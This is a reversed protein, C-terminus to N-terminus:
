SKELTLDVLFRISEIESATISNVHYMIGINGERDRINNLEHLLGTKPKISLPMYSIATDIDVNLQKMKTLHKFRQSASFTTFGLNELLEITQLSTQNWPPIYGNVEQSLSDELIRRGIKLDKEVDIKPRNEPFEDPYGPSNNNEHNFGHQFVTLNSFKKLHYAMRNSLLQPIVGVICEINFEAFINLVEMASTNFDGIDDIRHFFTSHKKINYPGTFM